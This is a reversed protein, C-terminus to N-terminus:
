PNAALKITKEYNIIIRILFIGSLLICISEIIVYVKLFNSFEYKRFFILSVISLFYFLQWYSLLKIKRLGIYISSFSSVIFSITFSFVLIKSIEGSYAFQNGFAFKFIPIGWILITIFGFVAISFVPIAIQVLDTIISANLRNKESIRQLLVSSVSTAILALPISLVLKSLDFYGAYESSYFKNIFIAPILYSCASMFGPFTNYKPFEAYKKRYYNIKTFSISQLRFGNKVAQYWGIIVNFMNGIIDGLILGNPSKLIALGSQTIGETGRRVFKNVSVPLFAKKRILWYNISQYTSFLFTGLPLFYLYFAYKDSLNLYSLINKKWILIIIFLIATFVSAIMVSLVLLNASGKDKRPLVIALEYKLSSVSVLIGLLSLYVAYAGFTEPSFYRRLFPQLIIPILQAFITGSILVSTNRILESNYLRKYYTQITYKL